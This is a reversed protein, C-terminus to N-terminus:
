DVARKRPVRAAPTKKATAATAISLLGRLAANVAEANPFAKTLAPDIIVINTSKAFRAAYKGRVLPGLDERRYVKRMEDNESSVKKM